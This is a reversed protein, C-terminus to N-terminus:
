RLISNVTSKFKNLDQKIHKLFIVVMKKVVKQM